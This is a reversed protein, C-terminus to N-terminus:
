LRYFIDEVNVLLDDYLSVKIQHKIAAKEKEDMVSLDAESYVAYTDDLEFVGDHNLYVEVSRALPTVLWYEKVGAQAYAKMKPGRDYRMTSPSLVEVVLDPTGYIGNEKIIEPNCVIMADPVFWNQDNLHVDVGDAFPVCTKGQLYNAFLRYINGSVLNHSILPRPSMLVTKGAIIETRPPEKQALNDM